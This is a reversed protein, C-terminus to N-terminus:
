ELVLPNTADYATFGRDFSVNVFGATEAFAVLYADSWTRHSYGRDRTRRRWNQELGDPEQSFFVRGDGLLADYNKWAEAMTVVDGKMVAPNTSLRLFGQQTFRCFACGRPNLTDFWEVATRHHEHGEFALALWVNIDPLHVSM